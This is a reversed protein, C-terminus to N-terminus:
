YKRKIQKADISYVDFPANAPRSWIREMDFGAQRLKEVLNKNKSFDSKYDSLGRAGFFQILDKVTRFKPCAFILEDEFCNVSMVFLIDNRTLGAVTRLTKVNENLISVNPIDTDFVLVVKTGKKITMAKVKSIRETVPNLIEIKGPRIRHQSSPAHMFSVLFNAECGGEVYYRFLDKQM